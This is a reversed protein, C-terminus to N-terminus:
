LGALTRPRPLPSHEVRRKEQKDIKQGRYNTKVALMMSGSLASEFMPLYLHGLRELDTINHLQVRASWLHGHSVYLGVPVDNRM